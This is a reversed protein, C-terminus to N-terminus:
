DEIVRLLTGEELYSAGEAIVSPIQNLGNQIVAENKLIFAIKVPVGHAKLNEDPIYVVADKDYVETLASFPIVSMVQNKSPYLTAQGIFGSRFKESSKELDLKVDFTGSKPNPAGAIETVNASFVLDPCADLTVAASDKLQIHIVDQDALSVQLRWTKSQNGFLIVPYGAGAMENEEVLQKLIIGDSPASIGAYKLNFEAIELNSQAVLLGTKADQIQELTAVSDAYLNLTRQYDREAKELGARAQVVKAEIENLKLSALAEGKKVSEGEKFYLADVIGGIKFALKMESSSVLRGSAYVPKSVHETKVPALRVPIGEKVIEESNEHNCGTILLIILIGFFPIIKRM